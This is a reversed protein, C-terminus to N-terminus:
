WFVHNGIVFGQKGSRINRFHTASGVNNVGNLAETAAQINQASPGKAVVAAVKGSGAPGFQGPAYIVDAINAYRGSHLRNMVVAGVAIKGEYVEQNAECEILAALLILDSTGAPVAKGMTVQPKQVSSNGEKKEKEKREQERKEEEKQQRQQIEEITEGQSLKNEVSVYDSSVYGVKENSMQIKIWKGDSGLVKVEEGEALLTSVGAQANANDRVRLSQAEITATKNGVEEALKEAEEGFLLYENKAWGEVNGSRIKTWEQGKEVIEGACDKYIKGVVSSEEAAQARVNLSDDVKAMVLSGTQSEGSEPLNMEEQEQVPTEEIQNASVTDDILLTDIPIAKTVGAAIDRSKIEKSANDTGLEKSIGASIEAISKFERAYVDEKAAGNISLIAASIFFYRFATKYKMKLLDEM